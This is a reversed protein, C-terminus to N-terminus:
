RKVIKAKYKYRPFDSKRVIIKCGMKKVGNKLKGNVQNLKKKTKFYGWGGYLM